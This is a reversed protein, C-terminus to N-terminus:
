LEEELVHFGCLHEFLAFDLNPFAAVAPVNDYAGLCRFDAGDAGVRLGVEFYMFFIVLLRIDCFFAQMKRHGHRFTLRKLAVILLMAFSLQSQAGGIKM